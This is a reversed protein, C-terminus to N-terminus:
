EDQGEDKSRGHAFVVTRNLAWLVVGWAGVNVMTLAVLPASSLNVLMGFTTSSGVLGLAFVPISSSLSWALGTTAHFTFMRHTAHAVLSSLAWAIGWLMAWRVADDRGIGTTFSFLVLLAGFIATNFAGAAGYRPLSGPPLLRDVVGGVM